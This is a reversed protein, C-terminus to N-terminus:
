HTSKNKTRIQFMYAVNLSVSMTNSSDFYAAMQNNFLHGMSYHFRAELQFIGAKESRGYFGLGGAAGWDFPREIPQYQTTEIPHKTGSESERFCYGIQPGLNIFARFKPSGFYIHALFPVEIYDLRRTYAVSLNNQSDDANERWGRQMYNLEVQLGCCKHQSYRFVLGGNGTLLAHKLVDNTGVVQPTWNVITALAGGHIGVYMEPEALRPQAWACLGSLSCLLLILFRSKM